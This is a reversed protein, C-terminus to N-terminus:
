ESSESQFLANKLAQLLTMPLVPKVLFAVAGAELGRRRDDLASSIIVPIEYADKIKQFVEWGRYGQITPELVVLQPQHISLIEMADHQKSCTFVQYDGNLTREYLELLSADGDIILITPRNSKVINTKTM